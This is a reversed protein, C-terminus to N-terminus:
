QDGLVLDEDGAIRGCEGMDVLYTSYDISDMAEKVTNGNNVTADFFSIAFRNCDGIATAESFGVVTQAGSCVMQEIINEPQNDEIHSEDFDAGTHCTLLLAFRLGGLDIKKIDAMTIYTSNAIMFGNKKGHTHVVFIDSDSLMRSVDSKSLEEYFDTYTEKEFHNYIITSVENFYYNRPKEDENLALLKYRMDFRLFLEWQDKADNNDTYERHEVNRGNNGIGTGASLCWDTAYSEGSQPRLIYSGGESIAIKWKQRSDGTYHQQVISKDGINVDDAQVSLALASAASVISYYGDGLHTFVWRQYNKGDFEWLEMIANSESASVNDDIQLYNGLKKNRIFYTGEPIETVVLPFSADYVDTDGTQNLCIYVSTEGPAVGVINEKGEIQALNSNRSSIQIYQVVSTDPYTILKLGMSGLSRVEEPAIYRKVTLDTPLGTNIDYLAFGTPVNEVPTLNWHCTWLTASYAGAVIQAGASGNGWATQLSYATLGRYRIVFGNTERSITWQCRMPVEEYENSESPYIVVPISTTASLTNAYLCMDSNSIPRITYMGEALYTIRWMQAIRDVNAAMEPIIDDQVVNTFGTISGDKTQLRHQLAQDTIYYIGDPITVYVTCYAMNKNGYSDTAYAAIIATGAKKGVIRGNAVTATDVNYSFWEVTVGDQVSAGITTAQGECVDVSSRSLTLEPVAPGAQQATYNITLKPRNATSNYSAFTKSIYTNGSEVMAHAKFVIGEAQEYTGNLWGRVAVTIDFGYYHPTSQKLGETYSVTKRCVYQGVAPAFDSEGSFTEAEWGVPYVNCYIDLAEEQQLVDYLYVTASNITLGSGLEDFDLGPFKMLARAIETDQQLGVHLVPLTHDSPGESHITTDEIATQGSYQYCINVTPDIRIPYTTNPDALYDGDLLITMNYVQNEEVTTALLEGMTNNKEDATFVIIEGISARIEGEADTLYYSGGLETLTLGNTYLTFQYETQGTYQSVVIDEKFGAYTLSYEISTRADYTYAVKEGNIQRANRNLLNEGSSVPMQAALRISVGEGDLRIGDAMDAPFSTVASNAKTRYPYRADETQAIELSIDQMKGDTDLYKVPHDYLYMTKSGDRNLFIHQNLNEKEEERLRAVHEHSHFEEEDVYQLINSGEGPSQTQINETVAGSGTERTAEEAQTPTWGICSLLIALALLISM